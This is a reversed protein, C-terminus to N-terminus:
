MGSRVEFCYFTDLNGRRYSDFSTRLGLRHDIVSGRQVAITRRKISRMGTGVQSRRRANRARVTADVAREELRAAILQKAIKVNYAQSRRAEVQVSIGSPKHTMQVTSSVKNRKMGGKGSGLCAKWVIDDDRLNVNVGTPQPLIAVTITSTHKRGGKETPPVRQWRHGGAEHSFANASGKGSARFILIGPRQEMIDLDLGKRAAWKGYLTFQELVLLKADDGGEAARIEVFITEM